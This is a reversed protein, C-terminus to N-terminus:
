EKEDSENKSNDSKGISIDELNRFLNHTGGNPLVGLYSTSIM